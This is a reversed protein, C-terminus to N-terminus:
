KGAGPFLGMESQLVVQKEPCSLPGSSQTAAAWEGHGALGTRSELHLESCPRCGARGVRQLGTMVPGAWQSRGERSDM